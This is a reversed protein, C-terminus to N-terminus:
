IARGPGSTAQVPAQGSDEPALTVRAAEPEPEPASTELDHRALIALRDLQRALQDLQDLSLFLTVESSSTFALDLSVGYRNRGTEFLRASVPAAPDVHVNSTVTAM